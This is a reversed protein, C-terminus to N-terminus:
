HEICEDVINYILWMGYAISIVLWLIFCAPLGTYNGISVIVAVAVFIAVVIIATWIVVRTKRSLGNM